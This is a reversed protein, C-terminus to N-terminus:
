TLLLETAAEVNNGTAQLADIARSRPFGMRVLSDVQEATPAQNGAGMGFGFGRQMAAGGVLRDHYQAGTGSTTRQRANRAPDFALPALNSNLFPGLAGDSLAALPAPVVLWPLAFRCLLGAVLAAAVAPRTTADASLALQLLLVYVLVRDPMPMGFLRMKRVSPVDLALPVALGYLLSLGHQLTSQGLYRALALQLATSVGVVSLALAAFKRSGLRREVTRFESLVGLGCLLNYPANLAFVHLPFRAWQRLLPATASLAVADHKWTAQLRPRPHTVARRRLPAAPRLRVVAISIVGVSYMLAKTTPAGAFAPNALASRRTAM